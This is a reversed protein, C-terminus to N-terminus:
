NRHSSKRKGVFNVERQAWRVMVAAFASGSSSLELPLANGSGLRMDVYPWFEPILTYMPHADGLRVPNHRGVNRGLLEVGVAFVFVVGDYALPRSRLMERTVSLRTGDLDPYPAMALLDPLEYEDLNGLAIVQGSANCWEGISSFFELSHEDAYGSLIWYARKATGSGLMTNYTAVPCSEFLRVIGGYSGFIVDSAHLFEYDLAVWLMSQSGHALEVISERDRLARDKEYNSWLEVDEGAGFLSVYCALELGMLKLEPDGCDVMETVKADVEEEVVWRLEGCNRVLASFPAEERAQRLTKEHVFLELVCRSLERVLSARPRVASLTRGLFGLVNSRGRAARKRKEGLLAEYVREAGREINRDKIQIALQGVVDWEARSVHPALRQALQEPTDCISALYSGAFYELFTRHTFTYLPEGEGTTGVDTFVWARGKCFDVFEEAADEASYIEEFGRSRFYKATELILEHRTVASRADSRTLIWFALHRLSPEILYRARLEVFIRRREDWKKFLLEACRQYVEARSKPISNEGRYLICMLALLLPNSRIDRVSISEALFDNAMKAAASESLDPEQAFWKETYEKIKADDFGRIRFVTFQRTDLRAEEYGVVRSTVLVQTLPYEHCFREIIATVEIRRSTDILEDLGDFVVFAEGSLLLIELLGSPPDCQYFTRLRDEIFERVSWPPPDTAAYERLTVLFPVRLNPSKAHEYLLAHSATTKGGGPDGLVVTRDIESEDFIDVRRRVEEGKSAMISEIVEPGVYLSDIPVRRRREFDPPEIMGHHSMVHNRYRVIYEIDAASDRPQAIAALHREIAELKANIRTLHAANRIQVLVEPKITSLSVVLKTITEDIEDFVVDGETSGYASNFAPRLSQLTSEPADSLRVALMEQIIAQLKNSKFNGPLEQTGARPFARATIQYTDFFTAIDLNERTRRGHAGSLTLALQKGTGAIVDVLLGTMVEDVLVPV